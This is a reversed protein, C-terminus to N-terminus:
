SKRYFAWMPVLLYLSSILRRTCREGLQDGLRVQAAYLCGSVNHSLRDMGNLISGILTLRAAVGQSPHELGHPRVLKPCPGEM